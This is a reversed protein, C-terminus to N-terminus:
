WYNYNSMDDLLRNVHRKALILDYGDCSHRYYDDSGRRDEEDSAALFRRCVILPVDHDGGVDLVLPLDCLNEFLSRFADDCSVVGNELHEQIESETVLDDGGIIVLILDPVLFGHLGFILLEDVSQIWLVM